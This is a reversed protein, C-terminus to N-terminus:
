NIGLWPTCSGTCESTSVDGVPLNAVPLVNLYYTKGPVLTCANGQQTDNVLV